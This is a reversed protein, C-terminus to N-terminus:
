RRYLDEPSSLGFFTVLKREEWATINKHGTEWDSVTSSSVDIIEALLEQSLGKISLRLERVRNRRPM